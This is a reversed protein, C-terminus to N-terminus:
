YLRGCLIAGRRIAYGNSEDDDAWFCPKRGAACESEPAFTIGENNLDALAPPPPLIARVAFRGDVGIDLLAIRDNCASDCLSFLTGNDRDFSLDMVAAQGSAFAAVRQSAGTTLTLVYGFIMGTSEVGVLFIGGSHEAYGAPDYAAGRGEDFFGRAVLHGDPIWAIAEPGRNPETAPLDSTLDWEHTAVMSSATGALDYRLVSPRRTDPVLNNGEAVVYMESSEWATRTLGESDPTSAGSPYLLTKGESWGNTTAPTFASGDWILRHIKSPDNQVAWLVAPASPTAPEYALGSLNAGFASPASAVAVGKDGPWAPFVVPPGADAADPASNGQGGCALPALVLLVALRDPHV